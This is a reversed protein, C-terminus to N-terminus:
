EMYEGQSPTWSLLSAMNGEWETVRRATRRRTASNHAQQILQKLYGNSFLVKGIKCLAKDAREEDSAIQVAKSIQSMALAAKTSEPHASM